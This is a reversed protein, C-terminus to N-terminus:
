SYRRWLERFIEWLLRAYQLRMGWKAAQESDVMGQSMESALCEVEALTSELTQLTDVCVRIERIEHGVDAEHRRATVEVDKRVERVLKRAQKITDVFVDSEGM